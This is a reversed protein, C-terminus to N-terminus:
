LLFLRKETDTPDPMFESKFKFVKVTEKLPYDRPIKYLIKVKKNGKSDEETLTKIWNKDDAKLGSLIPLVEGNFFDLDQDNRMRMSRGVFLTKWRYPQNNIPESSVKYEAAKLARSLAIGRGTAKSFSDLVSCIAVGRAIMTKDINFFVCATFINQTVPSTHRYYKVSVQLDDLREEVTKRVKVNVVSGEVNTKSKM